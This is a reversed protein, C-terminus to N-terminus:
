RSSNLQHPIGYVSSTLQHWVKIQWLDWFGHHYTHMDTIIACNQENHSLVLQHKVEIGRIYSHTRLECVSNKLFNLFFTLLFFIGAQVKDLWKRLVQKSINLWALTQDPTKNRQIHCHQLAMLWPLIQTKSQVMSHLKLLIKLVLCRDKYLDMNLGPKLVVWTDYPSLLSQGPKQGENWTLVAQHSGPM